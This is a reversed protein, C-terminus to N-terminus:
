NNDNFYFEQIIGNDTNTYKCTICDDDTDCANLRGKLIGNYMSDNIWTWTITHGEIRAIIPSNSVFGLYTKGNSNCTYDWGDFITELWDTTINKEDIPALIM